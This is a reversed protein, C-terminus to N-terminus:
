KPLKGMSYGASVRKEQRPLSSAKAPEDAAVGAPAPSSSPCPRQGVARAFDRVRAFCHCAGQELGAPDSVIVHGRSQQVLGKAELNSMAITVAPRSVGLMIALFEQKIPLDTQSARECAMLLWRALRQTIVHQSNCAATQSIQAIFIEFAQGLKRRLVPCHPLNELLVSKSLRWAEGPVQMIVSSYMTADPSLLASWGTMGEHGILGVEIRDEIGVTLAMVSALGREPFYVQEIAQGPEHLSQGSVLRVLELHPQFMEREEAPMAALIDNKFADGYQQSRM